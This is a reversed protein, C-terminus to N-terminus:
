NSATHHESHEDFWHAIRELRDIVHVPQGNRALEHGEEPYRVFKTEVDNNKLFRYFMEATNITARYDKESHILLMPTSIDSVHAVPSCEWYQEPNEWPTTGFEDELFRYGDSSGYMGTLDYVGRTGVAARFRNTQGIIWATLYGGYSSGMVFMNEEDIFGRELVADVGAMIDTYDPGGWDCYVARNFSEGYGVSGRPNCWFVIYGRAALTQFEHWMLGSTSWMYHPGGHIEVILPYTQDPSFDPPTLVWGQIEVGPDSEFTIEEPESVDHQSLFSSNVQTHRRVSGGELPRSFLDGPHDWESQAFVIRNEGVDFGTLHSIGDDLVVKPDTSGDASVGYLVVRGRDPVMFYVTQEKPGWKPKSGLGRVTRDLEGTLLVSDGTEDNVVYLDTQALSAGEDPRYPYVVQGDTSASIEVTSPYSAPYTFRTIERQRGEIRDWRFLRHTRSDGYGSQGTFYLTESDGWEPSTYNATGDTIRTTEGTEVNVLYVHATRGDFYDVGARYITQDIERPDPPSRCEDGAAQDSGANREAKTTSQVFAIHTDDPCWTIQSAGGIGHTLQCAEGGTRPILWLQPQNDEDRARLFALREGTPSWCPSTDMDSGRTFQRPEEGDLELLHISAVYEHDTAPEKKVFAVTTGDPSLQPDTALQGTTVRSIERYDSADIHM